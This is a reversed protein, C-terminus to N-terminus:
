IRVGIITAGLIVLGIGAIVSVIGTLPASHRSKLVSGRVRPNECVARARRGGQWLNQRGKFVVPPRKFRNFQRRHLAAKPMRAPEQHWGVRLDLSM